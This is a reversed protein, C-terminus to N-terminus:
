KINKKSLNIWKEYKCQSMKIRKDKNLWGSNSEVGHFM